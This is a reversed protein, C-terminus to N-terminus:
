SIEPASDGGKLGPLFRREKRQHSLLDLIDRLQPKAIVRWCTQFRRVQQRHTRRSPPQLSSFRTPYRLMWHKAILVNIAMLSDGENVSPSSTM